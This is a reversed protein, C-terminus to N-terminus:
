NASPPVEASRWATSSLSLAKFVSKSAVTAGYIILEQQFGNAQLENRANKTCFFAPFTSVGPTVM